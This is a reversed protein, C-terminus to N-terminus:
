GSSLRSTLHVKDPDGSGFGYAAAASDHSVVARGKSWLVWRAPADNNGTPWVPLRFIARDVRDWNGHDVHYTM